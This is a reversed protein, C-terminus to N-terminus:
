NKHAATPVTPVKKSSSCLSADPEGITPQRKKKNKGPNNNKGRGSQRQIGAPYGSLM